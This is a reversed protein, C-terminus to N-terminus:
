EKIKSNEITCPITFSFGSPFTQAECQDTGLPDYFKVSDKYNVDPFPRISFEDIVNIIILIALVLFIGQYFRSNLVDFQRVLIILGFVM